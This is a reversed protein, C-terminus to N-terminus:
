GAAVQPRIELSKPRTHPKEFHLVLKAVDKRGKRRIRKNPEWRLGDKRERIAAVFALATKKVKKSEQKTEKARGRRLSEEAGVASQACAM